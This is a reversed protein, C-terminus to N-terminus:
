QFWQIPFILRKLSICGSFANSGISTVSDPIVITVLKDCSQFARNDIVTVSFGNIESPIVLDNVVSEEDFDVIMANEGDITYTFDEFRFELQTEQQSDVFNGIWLLTVVLPLNLGLVFLISVIIIKTRKFDKM